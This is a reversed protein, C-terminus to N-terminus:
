YVTQAIAITEGHDLTHDFDDENRNSTDKGNNSRESFSNNGPSPNNYWGNSGETGGSWPPNSWPYDPTYSFGSESEGSQTLAPLSAPGPEAKITGYFWKQWSVAPCGDVIHVSPSEWGLSVASCSNCISWRPEPADQFPHHATQFHSCLERFPGTWSCGESSTRSLIDSRRKYECQWRSRFNWTESGIPIPLLELQDKTPALQATGATGPFYPQEMPAQMMENVSAISDIDFTLIPQISPRVGTPPQVPSDLNIDIDQYSPSPAAGGTGFTTGATTTPTPLENRTTSLSPDASRAANRSLHRQYGAELKTTDYCNCATKKTRHRQCTLGLKRKVATYTRTKPDLPGKRKGRPKRSETADRAAMDRTLAAELDSTHSYIPSRSEQSENTTSRSMSPARPPPLLNNQAAVHTQLNIRDTDRRIQNYRSQLEPTPEVMFRPANQSTSALSALPPALSAGDGYTPSPM